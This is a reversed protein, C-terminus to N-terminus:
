VSPAVYECYRNRGGRKAEYLALDARKILTDSSTAASAVLTCIGISISVHPCIDSTVHPLGLAALAALCSKAIRIATEGDTDSLLIAFEEGGYRAVMDTARNGASELVKAVTRICTDGDLHGYHDNYHKFHDIDIMLLSLAHGGRLSRRWESSLRQDFSRRNAIGTLGDKMSMLRLEETRALVKAELSEYLRANVLSVAVQTSLLELTMRHRATFADVLLNNELYVVAVLKGQTVVPLCLVSKPQRQQCYASYSFRADEVPNNLILTTRTDRVHRIIADPLVPEAAECLESLDKALRQSSVRQKGGMAGIVEVILRGNDELVIAGREAGANELLVGIMKQLLLDLQIEEALMQSAKLLSHLDIAGVRDSDFRYAISKSDSSYKPTQVKFPVQPWHAELWACKVSAGWRSYNFHAEQIFNMALQEQGLALWFRAYLENALAECAPFHALQAAAIARAYLDMAAKEDGQVRAIEASLLLHKHQFNAECGQAWVAFKERLALAQAMNGAPDAPNATAANLLGLATYFSAEVMSPSDPVCLGVLPLNVAHQQWLQPDELLYGLRIAAGVYMARQVTPQAGAQEFYEGTNVQATDFSLPSLTKGQLALVPQMVGYLLMARTNPQRSNELYKLGQVCEAELEDLRTGRAFHNVSRLLACYGASLPNIGQQGMEVGLDLYAFSRELPECWHLYFPAFYQYATLRFYKNDRKEALALALKGTAYCLPYPKGAAAMATMYPLYGICALDSEGHVITTQVMRCANVFFAGFAGVMYATHSMALHLRMRLLASPDVMEPMNLLAEASYQALLGESKEFEPSFLAWAAEDTAPFQEGLLDLAFLLIPLTDAFRGQNHYQDAQVLCLRAKGIPTVAAAISPAYLAEAADFHGALYLAECLELHLTLAFDPDVQWIDAALLEKGHRLLKAAMAFASAAKAKIGARLNLAALQAREQPSDVLAIAQNYQELIGFLQVDLDAEGAHALLLRGTKLQLAMREHEPTLSYVAQQVKDHLFRFRAGVLKEANGAFKYDDNLPVVLDSQLAPWLTAATAIADQDGVAMLQRMDFHGGLHAAMALLARTEPPQKHLRVLVLDVVNDMMERQQIKAMRWQWSGQEREYHLEGSDFLSYMFRRLFFPNGRTKDFCVEALPLATKGDCHLTDAILQTVDALTLSGLSLSHLVGQAAEIARVKNLLPHAHDVANDRYAAIVLINCDADHSIQRELLKLTPLDAWQLDDLFIVLTHGGEALARVFQGFAIQFRNEAEAAPLVPLPEVAGILLSLSPVIATVAAASSGLAAAFKTKWFLRREQGEAILQHMLPEFAQILATYPQMRNYQDCKGRIFYARAAVIPQHLENVLATKGVGSYGSILLLEARGRAAREFANFLVAKEAERGYLKNSVCFREPIDARGLEFSAIDKSRRWQDLCTQLDVQLGHSSQYREGPFKALLTQVINSVAEPISPEIQHLPTPMVALHFHLMAMPDDTQFPKQGFFLEYLTIGLSYFDSRYDVELNTRGTQEPSMYELSGRLFGDHAQKQQRGLQTSLGFDCLKLKLSVPDLLVNKASIDGHIYHHKHVDSLAAALQIAIALRDSLDLGHHSIMQALNTESFYELVLVQSNAYQKLAYSKIVWDSQIAQLVAHEHQWRADLDLSPYRTDQYKVVVVDGQADRARAVVTDDVAYIVDEITYDALLM